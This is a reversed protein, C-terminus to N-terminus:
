KVFKRFARITEYIGIALLVKNLFNLLIVWGYESYKENPTDLFDIKHLPDFFQIFLSLASSFDNVPYQILAIMIAFIIASLISTVLVSQVWSTGFNSFGWSVLLSGFSDFRSKLNKLSYRLLAWKAAKYYDSSVNKDNINLSATYFQIYNEYIQFPSGCIKSTPISSNSLDLKSITSLNFNFKKFDGLFTNKLILCEITSETIQLKSSKKQNITFDQIIFNKSALNNILIRNSSSNSLKFNVLNQTNLNNILSITKCRTQSINITKILDFDVTINDVKNITSPLNNHNISVIDAMGSIKLNRSNTSTTNFQQISKNNKIEFNITDLDATYLQSINSDKVTIKKCKGTLTLSQFRFNNIELEELNNLNIITSDGQLDDLFVNALGFEDIKSVGSINYNGFKIIGKERDFKKTIHIRNLEDGSEGKQFYTNVFISREATNM